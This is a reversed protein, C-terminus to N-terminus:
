RHNFIRKSGYKNVTTFAELVILFTMKSHGNKREVFTIPVQRIEFGSKIAQYAMEIQFGYGKTKIENVNITELLERPLVRFGSTLDQYPLKLVFSAYWTGFRSIIKRRRPWNVVSGGPMWRTGIILSNENAARLLDILQEPKHSLDADMQVFYDYDGVLGQKFASLYAPGLGGKMARILVSLGEINMSKAIEATKDPSNDDIMLIDAKYETAFQNRAADLRSLLHEINQAENYTPILILVSKM